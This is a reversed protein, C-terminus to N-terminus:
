ETMNGVEDAALGRAAMLHSDDRITQSAAFAGIAEKGFERGM